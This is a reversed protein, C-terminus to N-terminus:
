CIQSSEKSFLLRFCACSRLTSIVTLLSCGQTLCASLIKAQNGLILMWNWIILALHNTEFAFRNMWWKIGAKSLTCQYFDNFISLLSSSSCSCSKSDLIQSLKTKNDSSVWNCVCGPTVVSKSSDLLSENFCFQAGYTFFYPLHWHSVFWKAKINKPQSIFLKDQLWLLSSRKVQSTLM